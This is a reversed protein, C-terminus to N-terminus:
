PSEEKLHHIRHCNACLIICKKAEKKIRDLGIRKRSVASLGFEKKDPDKHHFDLAVPHENYGCRSCGRKTKWESLFAILDKTRKKQQARVKKRNKMYHEHSYEKQCPRCYSHGMVNASKRDGRKRDGVNDTEKKCRPCIYKGSEPSIM